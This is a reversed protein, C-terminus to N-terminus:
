MVCYFAAARLCFRELLIKKVYYQKLILTKVPIIESYKTSIKITFLNFNGCLLIFSWLRIKKQKWTEVERALYHWPAAGLGRGEGARLLLDLVLHGHAEVPSLLNHCYATRTIFLWGGPCTKDLMPMPYGRSTVVSLPEFVLTAKVTQWSVTLPVSLQITKNLDHRRPNLISLPVPSLM